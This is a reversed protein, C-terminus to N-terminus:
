YYSMSPHTLRLSTPSSLSNPFLTLCHSTALMNLAYRMSRSLANCAPQMCTAVVWVCAACFVCLVCVCVCVYMRPERPSRHLARRRLVQGRHGPVSPAGGHSGQWGLVTHIYSAFSSHSSLHSSLHSTALMNMEDVEVVGSCAVAGAV